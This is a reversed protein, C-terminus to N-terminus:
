KQNKALWEKMLAIEREQAAIIDGALKRTEPDKGYQLVIKAMDVAGQHHPLMGKVFDVDANGSYAIAMGAHMKDNAERFAKTSASDGRKARVHQMKGHHMDHGATQALTPAATLLLAAALMAAPPAFSTM